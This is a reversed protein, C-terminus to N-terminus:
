DRRVDLGLMDFDLTPAPTTSIGSVVIRLAVERTGRSIFDAPSIEHLIKVKHNSVGPKVFVDVWKKEEWDMLQFRLSGKEVANGNLKGDFRLSLSVVREPSTELKWRAEYASMGSAKTGSNPVITLTLRIEKSALPARKSLDVDDKRGSAGISEPVVSANYSVLKSAEDRDIGSQAFPYWSPHWVDWDERSIITRRFSSRSDTVVLQRTPAGAGLSVRTLLIRRGDPSFSPSREAVEPDSPWSMDIEAKGPYYTGAGFAYLHIQGDGLRRASWMMAGDPSHNPDLDGWSEQNQGKTSKVPRGGSSVVIRQTGELRVKEIRSYPLGEKELFNAFALWNGDPSWTPDLHSLEGPGLHTIQRPNSGDAQMVWITAKGEPDGRRSFFAISKGDYSWEPHGDEVDNRTLGTETGARLDYVFIENHKPDLGVGPILGGMNRVFVIKSGDPSFRPYEEYYNNKTIRRVLRGDLSILWIEGELLNGPNMNVVAVLEPHVGPVRSDASQLQTYILAFLLALPIALGLHRIATKKGALM